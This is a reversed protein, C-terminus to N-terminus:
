IAMTRESCSGDCAYKVPGIRLWEDGFGTRIGATKLANIFEDARPFFYMRYRMEGAAYADQLATLNAASVHAQQVSTLGAATMKESIYKIGAQRDKRSVEKYKGVTRFASRNEEVLGTLEGNEDRGYRGGTPDPTESTLGAMEIAKSSYWRVHGGRHRIQVLHNPAAEDLDWRNIRRYRGTKEDIVKTDDYKVGVVWYDPPTEAARAAIKKKIEGITRVDVDVHILDSIGGAHCHADIFGPTVTMGAADIVQTDPTILNRIDATSGVAIFRGNKVAFADTRPFAEDVTYVRGNIVALDAGSGKSLEQAQATGQVGLVAAMGAGLKVFDRRTFSSM